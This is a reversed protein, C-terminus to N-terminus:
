YLEGLDRLAELARKHGQDGAKYFWFVAEAADTEVGQGRAYLLGLDYQADADGQEAAKRLWGAGEAADRAVGEGRAYLVGLRCQAGADGAEAAARLASVDAQSLVFVARLACPTRSRAGACFVARLACARAARLFLCGALEAQRPYSDSPLPAYGRGRPATLAAFPQPPLAGGACGCVGRVMRRCVCFTVGHVHFAMM